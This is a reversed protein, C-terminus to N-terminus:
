PVGAAVLLGVTRKRLAEEGWTLMHDIDTDSRGKKKALVWAQFLAGGDPDFAGTYGYMVDGATDLVLLFPGHDLKTSQHNHWEGRIRNLGVKGRAEFVVEKTKDCYRAFSVTDKFAAVEIDEEVQRPVIAGCEMYRQRWEGGITGLLAGAMEQKITDCASRVAARPNDKMRSGDYAALTIGAFDSPIKTECEGDQVVFVHDVGLVGMFLGAEFIVNDRPSALTQGKSGTVDDPAWVMVAFDYQNPAAFLDQLFGTSLRFVDEDWVTVEASEELVDAMAHAVDVSAKSSGIFVKPKVM